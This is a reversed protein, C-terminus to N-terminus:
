AKLITLFSWFVFELCMGAVPSQARPELLMWKTGKKPVGHIYEWLRSFIFSLLHFHSNLIEANGKEIKDTPCIIYNEESIASLPFTFMVMM